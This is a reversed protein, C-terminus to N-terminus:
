LAANDSVEANKDISLNCGLGQLGCGNCESRCDRTIKESIAKERERLLFDKTVGMDIFDWSLDASINREGIYSDPDIQAKEFAKNWRNLDFTETWNDFRAGDRWAFELADALKLDGRAFVGELFTQEPSHYNLTVNRNRNKGKIMRGKERLESISNQKEWQFSTHAKPVFGAVSVSLQARKNNQSRAIRIARSAIETIGELDEETETPLGMMFYLKIRSWGKSFAFSLSSEIDEDNIGKNIVNRLRQTGAEPAFTLSGRKVREMGTALEVSFADMRLSPLSVKFGKRETESDLSLSRLVQKIGTFDCSALSLLGAEEWGTKAVLDRIGKVVEDTERERVPRTTMGAQCFRCGRSCGRFLEVAARDHVISASPVILSEPIPPMNISYVRKVKNRNNSNLSPVYVGPIKSCAALREERPDEKTENICSCLEPLM